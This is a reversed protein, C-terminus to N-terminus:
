EREALVELVPVGSLSKTYETAFLGSLSLSGASSIIWSKSKIILSNNKFTSLADLYFTPQWDLKIYAYMDPNHTQFKNCKIKEMKVM